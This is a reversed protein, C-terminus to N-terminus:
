DNVHDGIDLAVDQDAVQGGAFIDLDVGDRHGSPEIFDLGGIHADQFVRDVHELSRVRVDFHDVFSATREVAGADVELDNRQSFYFTTRPIRDVGSEIRSARDFDCRTFGRHEITVPEVVALYPIGRSIQGVEDELRSPLGDFEASELAGAPTVLHGTHRGVIDALDPLIVLVATVKPDGLIIIVGVIVQPNAVVFRSVPIDVPNVERSERGADGDLLM